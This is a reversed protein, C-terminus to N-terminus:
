NQVMIQFWYRLIYFQDNPQASTPGKAKHTVNITTTDDAFLVIYTVYM